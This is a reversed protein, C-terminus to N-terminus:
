PIRLGDGDFILATCGLLDEISRRAKVWLPHNVDDRSLHYHLSRLACTTIYQQKNAFQHCEEEGLEGDILGTSDDYRIIDTWTLDEVTVKKLITFSM